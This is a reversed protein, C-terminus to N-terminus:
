KLVSFRSNGAFTEIEEQHNKSQKACGAHARLLGSKADPLSRQAVCFTRWDGVGRHPKGAAAFGFFRFGARVACKM